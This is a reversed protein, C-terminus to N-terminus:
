KIEIQIDRLEEFSIQRGTGTRIFLEGREAVQSGRMVRERCVTSPAIHRRSAEEVIDDRLYEPIKMTLPVM